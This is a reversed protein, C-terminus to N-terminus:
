SNGVWRPKCLIMNLGYSFIIGNKLLRIDESISQRHCQLWCLRPWVPITEHLINSFSDMGCPGINGHQGDNVKVAIIFSPYVASKTISRNFFSFIMVGYIVNLWVSQNFARCIIVAFFNSITGRKPPKWMNIDNQLLIPVIM